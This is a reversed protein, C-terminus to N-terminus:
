QMLQRLYHSVISASHTVVHWKERLLICWGLERKSVLDEKERQVELNRELRCKRSIVKQDFLTSTVKGFRTIQSSVTNTTCQLLLSKYSRAALCFQNSVHRGRILFISGTCLSESSAIRSTTILLLAGILVGLVTDSFSEFSYLKWYFWDKSYWKEHLRAIFM